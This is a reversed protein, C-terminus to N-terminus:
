ANRVQPQDPLIDTANKENRGDTADPRNMQALENLWQAFPDVFDESTVRAAWTEWPGLGQDRDPHSELGKVDPLPADKDMYQVLFSWFGLLYELCLIRSNSLNIVGHRPHHLFLDYSSFGERHDTKVLRGECQDFDLALPTFRLGHHVIVQGKERDFLIGRNRRQRRFNLYYGAAVALCAWAAIGSVAFLALGACFLTWAALHYYRFRSYHSDPLKYGYTKGDHRTPDISIFPRLVEKPLPTVEDEVEIRQRSLHPGPISEPEVPMNRPEYLAYLKQADQPPDFQWHGQWVELPDIFGPKKKLAAWEEPDGV